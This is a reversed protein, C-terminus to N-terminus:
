HSPGGMEKALHTYLGEGQSSAAMLGALKNLVDDRDEADPNLRLYTQLDSSAEAVYGLDTLAVARNQYLDPTQPSLSIAQNLDDLATQFDGREYYLVARNSLILPQNPELVLAASYDALAEAPRGLMELAQARGILALAQAPVLDLSTSYAELAEEPQGLAQYCQGINTLVESYPPSLEIAKQYDELAKNLDGLKFHASGRDNYYESYNPDMEMAASYYEISDSLRNTFSYVQAINYQLVSRHLRHQNPDLQSDLLQGAARCLEIADAPRMQRHRVFALGNMTFATYFAKDGPPLETQSIGELGMELFDAAKKLDLEALYRSYLMGMVYYVKVRNSLQKIKNLAEDTVVQFARASDGVAVLCGFLNGVLNWRVLEDEKALEDLHKLVPESYRLADEYFGHHNNVGLAVAQWKHAHQNRGGLLNLRILQPLYTEIAGRDRRVRAELEEAQRAAKEPELPSSEDAPLDLHVVSISHEQEFRSLAAQGAPPAVAILLTLQLQQGRRRMLETFFRTAMAGARDYNDCAIVWRGGSYQHWEDFLNVLGHVIRYARDIPYNRVQEETPATEALPHRVPIKGRLAPVVSVLEYGHKQILHPAKAELQPLIEQCMERIGAWVGGEEFDCSLLWTTTAGDTQAGHLWRQLVERRASGPEAELLVITGPTSVRVDPMQQQSNM